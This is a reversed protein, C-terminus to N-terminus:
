SAASDIHKRLETISGFRLTGGPLQAEISGDSYLTYAMGDVVGSKLVSVAAASEATPVTTAPLPEEAASAAAVHEASGLRTARPPAPWFSQLVNGRGRGRSQTDLRPVARAAGGSAAAKIDAAEGDVRASAHVGSAPATAIVSGSDLRALTPFKARLQELAADDAVPATTPAAAPPFPAPQEAPSPPNAPFPLRVEPEAASTASVVAAPAATGEGVTHSLPRAALAREIRQLARVALGLGILILGGVAAITGPTVVEADFTGDRLSVGSVVLALGAATTAVGLLLLLVPM